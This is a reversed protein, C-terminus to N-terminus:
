HYSLCFISFVYVLNDSYNWIKYNCQLEYTNNLFTLGNIQPKVRDISPLPKYLVGSKSKFLLNSYNIQTYGVPIIDILVISRMGKVLIRM